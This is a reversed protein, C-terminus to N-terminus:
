PLEVPTLMTESEIQYHQSSLGLIILNDFITYVISSADYMHGIPTSGYLKVSARWNDYKLV